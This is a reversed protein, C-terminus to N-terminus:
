QVRIRIVVVAAHAENMREETYNGLITM